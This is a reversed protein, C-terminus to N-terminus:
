RTFTYVEIAEAIVTYGGDAEAHLKQRRNGHVTLSTPTAEYLTTGALGSPYEVGGDTDVVCRAEVRLQNGSPTYSVTVSRKSGDPALAITMESPTVDVFGRYTPQGASPAGFVIYDRAITM